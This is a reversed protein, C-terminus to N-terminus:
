DLITYHHQAVVIVSEEEAEEGSEETDEVIHEIETEPSSALNPLPHRVSKKGKTKNQLVENKAQQIKQLNELSIMGIGTLRRRNVKPKSRLAEEKERLELKLLANETLLQEITSSLKKARKRQPSGSTDQIVRKTLKRTTRPTRPATPSSQVEPIAQIPEPTRGNPLKSIAMRPNFPYLGTQAWASTITSKVFTRVRAPRLIDWFNGKNIPLIGSSKRTFEDVQLGYYHAYPGYVGVDLPQLHHTAHPPMSFPIVKNDLCYKLFEYEM